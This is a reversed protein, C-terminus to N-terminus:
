SLACAKVWWDPHARAIRAELASADEASRCLAFCTAGSGSMRSVASEPGDDLAKLVVSIVPAMAVAAPQLHNATAGLFAVLGEFAL